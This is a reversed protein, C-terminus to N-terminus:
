VSWDFQSDGMEKRLRDIARSLLVRANGATIGLTDAIEDYDKEQFFRLASFKRRKGFLCRM